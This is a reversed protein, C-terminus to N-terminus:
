ESHGSSLRILSSEGLGSRSLVPLPNGYDIPRRSLGEVEPLLSTDRILASAYGRGRFDPHTGVGGIGGMHVVGSGIRMKRDWVRLTAVIRSDVVVVRTQDLRYSSDGRIYQTYRKHGDPRFIRCQLAIMEELEDERVSRIEM